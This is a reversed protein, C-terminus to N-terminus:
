IFDDPDVSELGKRVEFHLFAPTGARVKAIEQGRTVADGKKVLLNDVNTYVTLLGDAHKIVVIAVGKTDKTIAALQDEFIMKSDHLLRGILTSKGDDVSGCTFFRLMQKHEHQKLYAQIDTILLDSQSM